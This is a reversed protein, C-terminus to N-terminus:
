PVIWGRAKWLSIWEHFNIFRMLFARDFGCRSRRISVFEDHFDEIVNNEWLSLFRRFFWENM